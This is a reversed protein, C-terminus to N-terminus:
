SIQDYLFTIKLPKSSMTQNEKTTMLSMYSMKLSKPQKRITLLKISIKSAFKKKLSITNPPFNRLVLLKRPLPIPLLIYLLPPHLRHLFPFAHKSRIVKLSMSLNAKSGFSWPRVAVAGKLSLILCGTDGLDIGFCDDENQNYDSSSEASSTPNEKHKEDEEIMQMIQQLHKALSEKSQAGALAVAIQAKQNLFSATEPDSIKQSHPNNKFWERVKDPYAMSSDFQSCWKVYGHRQLIPLSKCHDSKAFKYQWSFVWALSFNSFFKLMVPICSEQSNFKSQFLKYGEDTPSPLIEPIPGFFDWKTWAEMYDWYNFGIPDYNQSFKQIKNLNNGFQKPSLNRLIKINSHTIFEPNTKDKYHKISVSDTDILNFEYFQSTKNPALPSFHFGTPFIKPIVKNPSSDWFEPEMHIINSIKNTSMYNTQAKQTKTSTSSTQPTQVIAKEKPIHISTKHNAIQSILQALDIEE